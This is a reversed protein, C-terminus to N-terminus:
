SSSWRLNEWLLFGRESQNKINRKNISIPEIKIKPCVM